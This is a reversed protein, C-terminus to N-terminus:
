YNECFDYIDVKVFGVGKDLISKIDINRFYVGIWGEFGKIFVNGVMVGEWYM